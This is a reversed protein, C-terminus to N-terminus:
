LTKQDEVSRRTIDVLWLTSAATAPFYNKKYSKPIQSHSCNTYISGSFTIFNGFRFLFQSLINHVYLGTSKLTAKSAADVIVQIRKCSTIDMNTQPFAKESQELSKAFNSKASDWKKRSAHLANMMTIFTPITQPWVCMCHRKYLYEAYTM